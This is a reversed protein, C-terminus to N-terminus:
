VRGLQLFFKSFTVEQIEEIHDVRVLLPRVLHCVLDDPLQEILERPVHPHKHEIALVPRHLLLGLSKDHALVFVVGGEELQDLRGLDFDIRVSPLRHGQLVDGVLVVLDLVLFYVIEDQGVKRIECFLNVRLLFQLPEVGSLVL